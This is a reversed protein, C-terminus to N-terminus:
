KKDGAFHPMVKEVFLKIMSAAESHTSGKVQVRFILHNIGAKGYKEILEVCEDPSGVIVIDKRLSDFTVDEESRYTKRMVPYGWRHYTRFKDVIARGVDARASDSDKAVYLDRIVPFDTMSPEKGNKKLAQVFGPMKHEIMGLPTAADLIWADGIEAIRALSSAFAAGSLGIWIPLDTQTPKPNVSVSELHYYKSQWSINDHKWLKRLLLVQEELIKRRDEYSVGFADYEERRYGVGVGLIMRGKSMIDLMAVDEALKLPHYLPLIIIGTGVKMRKTNGIVGALTVLPPFFIDGTMHHEGVWVSDFGVRDLVRVFRGLQEYSDVKDADQPYQTPLYVGFQM